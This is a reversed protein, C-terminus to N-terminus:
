VPESHTCDLGLCARNASAREQELAVAPRLDHAGHLVQACGRQLQERARSLEARACERRRAGARGCHADRPRQLVRRRLKARRGDADRGRALVRLVWDEDLKRKLGDDTGGDLVEPGHEARPADRGHARGGPARQRHV